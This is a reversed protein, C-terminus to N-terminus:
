ELSRLMAGISDFKERVKGKDVGAAVELADLRTWHAFSTAQVGRQALVRELPARPRDVLKPVDEVMREVVGHADAKNTGIVGTPSRRSWGVAYWGPLVGGGVTRTVRGDVNPIVGTKSDFPVGPLPEGFYGISRFVLGTELEFFQGTGQARGGDLLENRELKVGSVRGSGDDLLQVPSALFELRLTRPAARPAAALARMLEVNRKSAADLLELQAADLQLQKPDIRLGISALEAIDELESPTFAAQAAGRRAVLVVERIRSARLAELAAAAIDTKALEDRDRLLVRAVDIAVNGVGIVVAREVNLEFAADRFDPHANYWGVFTTAAHSGALDEGPIGLRRDTSSGVAYVVQDYHAALEEASVDKGVTVNGFFRFREHQAIKEFARTVTKIKQHDPAVGSRVLGFPTPLREFLDVVFEPTRHRLLADVTFFGAPGAGVVAVRVPREHSGVTSM